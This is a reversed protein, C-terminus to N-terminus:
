RRFRKNIAELDFAEPDYDDGVRERWYEYDPDTPDALAAVLNEYGYVGGCDEPPCARAGALCVPYRRGEEGAVVRERVIEHNWTDGFDYTYLLKRGVAPLVAGVQAEWEDSAGTETVARDGEVPAYEIRGVRFAHLHDDEWGMVTQVVYHLDGLTIDGTVQVRRWVPPTTYKLTIKLQCVSLSLPLKPTPM